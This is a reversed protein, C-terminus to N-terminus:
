LCGGNVVQGGIGLNAGMHACYAELAHTKGSKDRAIVINQGNIDIARTGNQPLKNSKCAIYWGNPFPPVHKGIRKKKPDYVGKMPVIAYGLHYKYVAYLLVLIAGFILNSYDSLYDLINM